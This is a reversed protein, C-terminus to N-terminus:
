EYGMDEYVKLLVESATQKVEEAQEPNEAMLKELRGILRETAAKEREYKEPDYIKDFLSYQRLKSKVAEWQDILDPLTTRTTAM